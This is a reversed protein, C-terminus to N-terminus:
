TITWNKLNLEPKILQIDSYIKDASVLVARHNLADAAIILDITHKKLTEPKINRLEKFLKKLDGFIEAAISSLSLVIFDQQMQWITTRIENKKQTPSNAFAYEFEYLTLISIFVDDNEKLALIKKIFRNHNEASPNYIDSVTNSDLLYKM